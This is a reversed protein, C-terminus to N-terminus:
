AVWNLIPGKEIGYTSMTAGETGGGDLRLSLSLGWRVGTPLNDSYAPLCSPMRQARM